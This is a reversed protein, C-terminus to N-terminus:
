VQIISHFCGYGMRQADFIVRSPDVLPTVLKEMRPDTAIAKHALAHDEKSDFSVWGFIITEDEKADLLESFPLTGEMKKNDIVFESYSLAGHEKWIAAIQTAMNKYTELDKTAIPFAYGDIYNNM